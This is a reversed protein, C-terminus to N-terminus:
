LANAAELFAKIRQPDKQGPASEVGSSVDIGPAGSVSVARKLNEATLAGALMWPRRWKRGALLPWDFALANGGPLANKMAKPPKADFLLRETVPLYAEAADLDAAEAVPIAKMTERGFRTRIAAVREPPEKGHLQLIDLPVAQLLAAIEDDAPDVLLGVRQVGPPVRAALAAAAEFSVHRPSKPFFVFGIMAAGHKVAAELAPHSNIGCIKVALSM